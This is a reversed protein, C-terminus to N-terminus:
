NRKSRCHNEPRHQRLNVSLNEVPYGSLEDTTVDFCVPEDVMTTGIGIEATIRVFDDQTLEVTSNNSSLFGRFISDVDPVKGIKWFLGLNKEWFSSVLNQGPDTLTHM